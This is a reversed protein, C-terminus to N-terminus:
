KRVSPMPSRAPRAIESESAAPVRRPDRHHVLGERALELQSRVGDPRPEGDASAIGLAVDLDQVVDARGQANDPKIIALGDDNGM